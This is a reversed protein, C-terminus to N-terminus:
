KIISLSDKKNRETVSCAPNSVHSLSPDIMFHGAIADRGLIMEHGYSNRNGLSVDLEAYRGAICVGLTVVPRKISKGSAMRFNTRTVMERELEVKGGLRNAVFFKAWRKGNRKLTRLRDVHLVNGESGPTFKAELLIEDPLLMVREEWGLVVRDNRLPPSVVLTSSQALASAAPTLVLLLLLPITRLRHKSM